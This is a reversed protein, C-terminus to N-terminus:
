KKVKKTKCKFNLDREENEKCKKVCRGTLANWEKGEVCDKKKYEKEKEKEKSRRRTKCKFNLDREENEKCKKVCRGTLVNLEKGEVCDKKKEKKCRFNLDREENEKCEKVCRGTLVNWEKGEVCLLLKDREKDDRMSVYSMGSINVKPVYLKEKTPVHNVFVINEKKLIDGLIESEYIYLAQDVTYRSEDPRVCNILFFYLKTCDILSGKMHRFTKNLVYLLGMCMGYLDFTELSKKIFEKRDITETNKITNLMSHYLLFVIDKKKVIDMGRPPLICKLFFSDYINEIGKNLLNVRSERYDSSKYRDKMYFQTEVPYSWHVAFGDQNVAYNYTKSLPRMLGFDIFAVRNTDVNYVINQHKLDHHTIDNKLFVHLGLFLRHCEIWFKEMINISSQNVPKRSMDMAFDELNVGGDEMILLSYNDRITQTGHNTAIEGIRKCKNAAMYNEKTKEPICKTPIGLYFLNTPDAKSIALYEDLETNAYKSLLLKSLKNTYNIDPSAACKLSPKHVCGYSGEGAVEPVNNM